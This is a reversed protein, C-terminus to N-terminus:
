KTHSRSVSVTLAKRKKGAQNKAKLQIREGGDGSIEDQTAATDEQSNANSLDLDEESDSTCKGKSAPSTNQEEINLDVKEASQSVVSADAPHTDHM